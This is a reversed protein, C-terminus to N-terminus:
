PGKRGPRAPIPIAHNGDRVANGAAQKEQADRAQKVYARIQEAMEASILAVMAGKAIAVSPTAPVMPNMGSVLQLYGGEPLDAVIALILGGPLPLIRLAPDMPGQIWNKKGDFEM